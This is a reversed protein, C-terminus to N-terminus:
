QCGCPYTPSVFSQTASGLLSGTNSNNGAATNSSGTANGSNTNANNIIGTAQNLLNTADNSRGIAVGATGAAAGGAGVAGINSFNGFNSFGSPPAAGPGGASTSNLQANLQAPAAHIAPVPPLGAAITTFEGAHLLIVGVVAANINRVRVLGEICWVKTKKADGEVVFTTGVVGIVATQTKVEFSANPKTLKVVEGRLKGATLEIETQQTATDHKTITMTSRVGVNLFSGDLLAIRVRGTNQTAVVDQFYVPDDVKLPAKTTQGSHQVTEAPIANSVKGAQQAGAQPSGAELTAHKGMPLILPAGSGRIEVHGRDNFVAASGQVAAIRCLAPFGGESRVVVAAGLVTVQATETGAKHLAIAGQRLNLGDWADTRELALESGESMTVTAGSRLMLIAVSGSQTQIVDGKFVTTGSIAPVANVLVSGSRTTVTGIAEHGTLTGAAFGRASAGIVL